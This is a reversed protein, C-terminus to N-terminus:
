TQPEPKHGQSLRWAIAHDVAVHKGGRCVDCTAGAADRGAAQCKPCAVLGLRHLASPTAPPTKPEEDDITM